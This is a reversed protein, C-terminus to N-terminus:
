VESWANDKFVYMKEKYVGMDGGSPTGYYNISSLEPLTQNIRPTDGYVEIANIKITSNVNLRFYTISDYNVIHVLGVDYDDTSQVVVLNYTKGNNDYISTLNKGKVLVICGNTLNVEGPEFDYEIVGLGVFSVVGDSFTPAVSTNFNCISHKSTDWRNLRTFMPQICPKVYETRKDFVYLPLNIFSNTTLKLSKNCSEGIVILQQYVESMITKDIFVNNAKVIEILPKMNVATLKSNSVSLMECGDVIISAGSATNEFECSDFSINQSNSYTSTIYVIKNYSGAFVCSTFFVGRTSDLYVVSNGCNSMVCENFTLGAIDTYNNENDKICKVGYECGLVNCENVFGESGNIFTLGENLYTFRCNTVFCSGWWSFKLGTGNRNVWSKNSGIFEIGEIIVFSTRKDYEGSNSGHIHIGNKSLIKTGAEGIVRINLEGEYYYDLGSLMYEGTPIKINKYNDFAFKLISAIDNIGDSKAGLQKINLNNDVLVATLNNACMIANYGNPEVEGRDVMYYVAAGGDNATHFGCTACVAGATISTSSSMESVTQFAKGSNMAAKRYAEVQADYNASLMWYNENTIEVGVPVNQVSIYSAGQYQVLTWYEYSKTKDWERQGPEPVLPVMRPGKYQTVTM